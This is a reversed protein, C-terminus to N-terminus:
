FLRDNGVAIISLLLQAYNIILFRFHDLDQPLFIKLGLKKDRFHDTDFKRDISIYYTYTKLQFFSKEPLPLTKHLFDDRLVLYKPM